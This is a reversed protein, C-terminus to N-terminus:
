FIDMYFRLYVQFVTQCEELGSSIPKLDVELFDMHYM